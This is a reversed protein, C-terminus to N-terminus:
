GRLFRVGRSGDAYTIFLALHRRYTLICIQHQLCVKQRDNLVEVHLAFSPAFSRLRGCMYIANQLGNCYDLYARRTHKVHSVYARHLHAVDTDSMRLSTLETLLM